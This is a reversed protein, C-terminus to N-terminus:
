LRLDLRGDARVPVPRPPPAADAATTAAEAAPGKGSGAPGGNGGPSGAFAFSLDRYGLAAFDQALLDINRRMLELTEPREAAVTLTLGQDSLSLVMRVRGLERPELQIEVPRSPDQALADGIQGAVSRVLLTTGAAPAARDPGPGAAGPGGRAEGAGPGADIAAETPPRRAADPQLVAPDGPPPVAREATGAGPVVTPARTGAAPADVPQAPSRGAGRGAGPLPDATPTADAPADLQAEAPVAVTPAAAPATATAANGLVAPQVTAPVAGGGKTSDAAAASRDTRSAAMGARVTGGTVAADAQGSPAAGNGPAPAVAMAAVAVAPPVPRNAAPETAVGSVAIAPLGAGPPPALALGGGTEVAAEAPEAPTGGAETGASPSAGGVRDMSDRFARGTGPDGAAPPAARTAPAAQAVAPAPALPHM